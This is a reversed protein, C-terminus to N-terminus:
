TGSEAARLEAVIAEPLAVEVPQGCVLSDVAAQLTYMGVVSEALTVVPAADGRIAAAFNELQLRYPDAADIPISRSGVTRWGDSWRQDVVTPGEIIWTAPLSLHGKACAYTRWRM